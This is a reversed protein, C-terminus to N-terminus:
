VIFNEVLQYKMRYKDDIINSKKYVSYEVKSSTFYFDIEGDSSGCKEIGRIIEKDLEKFMESCIIAYTGVVGNKVYNQAYDLARKYDNGMFLVFNENYFGRKGNYESDFMANEMIYDEKDSLVGVEVGYLREM